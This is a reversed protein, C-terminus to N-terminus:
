TRDAHDLVARVLKLREILAPCAGPLRSIKSLDFGAATAKTKFVVGHGLLAELNDLAEGIAARYDKLPALIAPAISADFAEVIQDRHGRAENEAAFLPALEFGFDDVEKATITPPEGLRQSALRQGAEIHRRQGEQRAQAAKQLAQEAEDISAPREPIVLLRDFDPASPKSSLRALM